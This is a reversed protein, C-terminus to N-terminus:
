GAAPCEDYVPKAGIAVPVAPVSPEDVDIVTIEPAAAAIATEVASQLTASSAPCGDCSGLLRVRVAGADPDVDVLEVGGGHAALSPRVGRLAAEVRQALSSPHLGHVILLSAVLEDAVLEDLLQPAREGVLEVVRALGAGYLESVVRLLEDARDRTRPDAGAHLEDLLREIRDGAVVPDPTAPTM